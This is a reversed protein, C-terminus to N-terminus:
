LEMKKYGGFMEEMDEYVETGLMEMYIEDAEEKPDIDKFEDPYLVTGIYYANALTTGLNATYWNYPLVCYVEKNKIADLNYYTSDELEEIVLTYGGEDVFIVGPNWELMKEKDIFAHESGVEGAVNKAHIFRFPSYTPETSLIGHAGRYGIGGVYCSPKDADPIDKTMTDLESIADDIFSILEEGRVEKDMIKGVLRLASYFCERNDSLDGYEIAVVPIGTKQQLEDADEKTAYTWFIVDPKQVTILEADGGHIPGISPLNKLEPHAYTYPKGDELEIEEIGVVKDTCQMYVLLRLAGSEIGVVRGINIPVEVNRGLMDTITQTEIETGNDICGTSLVSIMLLILVTSLLVSKKNM